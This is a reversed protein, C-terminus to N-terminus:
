DEVYIVVAVFYVALRAVPQERITATLLQYFLDRYVPSSTVTNYLTLCTAKAGTGVQVLRAPRTKLIISAPAELPSKVTSWYWPNKKSM